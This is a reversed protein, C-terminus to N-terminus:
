SNEKFSPSRKCLFARGTDNTISSIEMIDAKTLTSLKEEEMLCIIKGSDKTNSDQKISINAMAM